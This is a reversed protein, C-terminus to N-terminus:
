PSIIAPLSRIQKDQLEYVIGKDALEEGFAKLNVFAPWLRAYSSNDLYKESDDIKMPLYVM